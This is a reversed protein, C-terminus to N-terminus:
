DGPISNPGMETLEGWGVRAANHVGIMPLGTTNALLQLNDFQMLVTNGKGNVFVGPLNPKKVKGSLDGSRTVPAVAPINDITYKSPDYLCGGAGLLFGDYQKDQEFSLDAAVAVCEGYVQISVLSFLLASICIFPKRVSTLFMM